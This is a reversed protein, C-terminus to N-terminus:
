VGHCLPQCVYVCMSERVCVCMCVCCVRVCVYICVFVYDDTCHTGVLLYGVGGVGHCVILGGGGCERVCVCV